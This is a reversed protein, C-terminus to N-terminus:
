IWNTLAIITTPDPCSQAFTVNRVRTKYAAWHQPKKGSLGLPAEIAGSKWIWINHQLLKNHLSDIYSSANPQTAMLAFAEAASCIQSNKPLGNTELACLNNISMQNLIGKLALIDSDNAAIYGNIIAGRFAFDLDVIAKAPLAMANLIKMTNSINDVSNTSILAKNKSSLTFGNIEEYLFPLLSQETKGEALIVNDAFLVKASQTLSFLHEAQHQANSIHLTVADKLRSKCYTGQIQNKRILITNPATEANIMQASHTTFIIQFNTISLKELAIRVYEIASPHLYLEPEDILLLTTSGINTNNTIDALHQILAMQIARQTGHGYTTFDTSSNYPSESVKITGARLLDSIIPTEFHLKLNIGPFLNHIKTNIASDIVSLENIRNAGNHSILDNIALIHQSVSQTHQQILNDCISSLIKGITSTNKAKTADDAANEMAGIRIPEPFLASIANDIGTPNSDYVSTGPNYIKLITESKKTAGVPQIRQITIDGNIVYPTIKTKHTDSLSDLIPQTVGTIKGEVIIEKTIDNYDSPLLLRDKLLWEISSLINSKGANNYGVIPTFNSLEVDINKCSRFNNIKLSTLQHPM